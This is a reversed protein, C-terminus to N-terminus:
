ELPRVAITALIDMAKLSCDVLHVANFGDKIGIVAPKNELISQYFHKHELLLHDRKDYSEEKVFTGDDYKSSTAEFIKNAFLDVSVMGEKSIVELDRIEKTSNRGV